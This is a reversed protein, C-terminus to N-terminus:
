EGLRHPIYKEVTQEMILEYNRINEIDFSAGSPIEYVQILGDVMKGSAEPNQNKVSILSVYSPNPDYTLKWDSDYTLYVIDAEKRSDAYTEAVSDITGDSSSFVEAMNQILLTAEATRSTQVDTKHANFFLQVCVAGSISFFLIVIILEMLFLSTKSNNM